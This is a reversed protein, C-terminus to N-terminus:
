WLTDLLGAAASIPQTGNHEGLSVSALAAYQGLVGFLKQALACLCIFFFITEVVCVPHGAFYRYILPHDLPGRKVLLYFGSAAILGFIIPWALGSLMSGLSSRNESRSVHADKRM